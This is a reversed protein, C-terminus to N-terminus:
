ESRSKSERKCTIERILSIREEPIFLEGVGRCLLLFYQGQFNLFSLSVLKHVECVQISVTAAKEIVSSFSFVSVLYQVCGVTAKLIYGEFM